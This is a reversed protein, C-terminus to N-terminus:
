RSTGFCPTLRWGLHGDDRWEYYDDTPRKDPVARLTQSGGGGHNGSLVSDVARPRATWSPMVSADVTFPGVTPKGRNPPRGLIPPLLGLLINVRHLLRHLLSSAPPRERWAELRLHHFEALFPSVRARVSSSM